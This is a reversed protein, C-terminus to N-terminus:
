IDVDLIKRAVVISAAWFAMAIGTVIYGAWDATMPEFYGPKAADFAFLMVAPALGLVWLQAKGEATKTRVVGELREMERLASATRELIGPLDGGLQKGILIATIGMDLFSSGVRSGMTVLAQDMTSGVRIEKLVLDLEERLPNQVVPLTAQLAASVGPVARLSNALAMLFDVVQGELKDVRERRMKEVKWPPYGLVLVVGLWGFPIEVLINLAIVLVLGAIQGLAIVRGPTWIYMSRLKRELMLTYKLWYRWIMSSHDGVVSLLFMGCALAIAVVAGLLMLWPSM